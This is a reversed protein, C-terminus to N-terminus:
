ERWDPALVPAVFVQSLQGALSGSQSGQSIGAAGTEIRQRDADPPSAWRRGCLWLRKWLEGGFCLPGAASQLAARAAASPQGRRGSRGPPQHDLSSTDEAAGLADGVLFICIFYMLYEGTMCSPPLVFSMNM